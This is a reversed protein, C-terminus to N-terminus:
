CFANTSSRLWCRTVRRSFSRSSHHGFWRTRGSSTSLTTSVDWIFRAYNHIYGADQQKVAIFAPDDCFRPKENGIGRDLFDREIAGLDEWPPFAPGGKALDRSTRAPTRRRGKSKKKRPM